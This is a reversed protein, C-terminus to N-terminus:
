NRKPFRPCTTAAEGWLAVCQEFSPPGKGVFTAFLFAVLANVQRATLNMGEDPIEAGIEEATMGYCRKDTYSFRDFYPMGLVPRGCRIAEAALDPTLQLNRFNAGRPMRPDDPVGDGMLGHCDRCPTQEKFMRTGLEVLQPDPTYGPGANPPGAGQGHGSEIGGLLVTGAVLPAVLWFMRHTLKRKV